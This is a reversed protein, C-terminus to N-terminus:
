RRLHNIVAEFRNPEATVPTLTLKFTGLSFHNFEYQGAKIKAGNSSSFLLSFSEGSVGDAKVREDTDKVNLLTLTKSRKMDEQRIEFETYTFPLFHKSTFSFVPDALTEAPIPFLEGPKELQGFATGNLNLVSGAVAAL